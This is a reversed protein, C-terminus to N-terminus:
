VANAQREKILKIVRRLARQNENNEELLKYTEFGDGEKELEKSLLREVEGLATYCVTQQLLQKQVWDVAVIFGDEFHKQYMSGDLGAETSKLSAWCQADEKSIM